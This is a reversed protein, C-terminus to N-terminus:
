EDCKWVRPSIARHLSEVMRENPTFLLVSMGEDGSGTYVISYVEGQNGACDHVTKYIKSLERKVRNEKHFETVSSFEISAISKRSSKAYIKDIDLSDGNQAYEFEVNQRRVLFIALAIIGVVFVPVFAFLNPIFAIVVLLILALVIIAIQVARARWTISRKVIQEKFINHDM